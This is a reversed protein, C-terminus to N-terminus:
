WSKGRIAIMHNPPEGFSVLPDEGNDTQSYTPLLVHGSEELWESERMLQRLPCQPRSRCVCCGVWWWGGGGCGERRERWCVCCVRCSWLCLCWCLCVCLSVCLCGCVCVCVVRVHIHIHIHIHIHVRVHVHWHIHKHIKYRNIFHKFCGCACCSFFMTSLWLCFYFLTNVACCLVACSLTIWGEEQGDDTSTVTCWFFFFGFDIWGPFLNRDMNPIKGSNSPDKVPHRDSKGYNWTLILFAPGPLWKPRCPIIVQSLHSKHHDAWKASSCRLPIKQPRSDYTRHPTPSVTPFTPSTPSIPSLSSTSTTLTLCTVHIVSSKLVCLHAIRLMASLGPDGCRHYRGASFHLCTLVCLYIRVIKIEEHGTCISSPCAQLAVAQFVTRLARNHVHTSWCDLLWM